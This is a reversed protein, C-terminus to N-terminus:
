ALRVIVFVYLLNFGITPVIFPDMAAFPAGDRPRRAVDSSWISRSARSLSRSASSSCSAMSARREGCRIKRHEDGPDVRASGRRDETPRPALPIELALVPPVGGSALARPDRASHDQHRQPGFDAPVAVFLVEILYEPEGEGRGPFETEATL